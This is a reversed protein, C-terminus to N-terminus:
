FRKSLRFGIFAMPIYALTLDVAHMWAPADKLMYANLIGFILFILGTFMALPMNRSAAFKGVIFCGLITGLSHALFPFIFHKAEYLHINAMVAEMDMPDIGNPPPVIYPGITILLGNLVNGLILGLIVVLINRLIPNM